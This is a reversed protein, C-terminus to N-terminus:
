VFKKSKIKKLYIIVPLNNICSFNIEYMVSVSICHMFCELCNMVVYISMLIKKLSEDNTHSNVSDIEAM